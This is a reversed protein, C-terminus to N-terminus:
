SVTSDQGVRDQWRRKWWGNKVLKKVVKKWGKKRSAKKLHFDWFPSKWRKKVMWPPGPSFYFAVQHFVPGRNKVMWPPGPSCSEELFISLTLKEGRGPCFKVVGPAFNWRCDRRWVRWLIRLIECWTESWKEGCSEGCSKAVLNAVLKVVFESSSEGSSKAVLNAFNCPLGRAAQPPEHRRM